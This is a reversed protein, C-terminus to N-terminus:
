ATFMQSMNMASNMDIGNKKMNPTTQNAAGDNMAKKTNGAEKKMTKDGQMNQFTQPNFGGTKSADEGGKNFSTVGAMFNGFGTQQMNAAEALKQGQAALSLELKRQAIEGSLTNAMQQQQTARNSNAGYLQNNLQGGLKQAGLMASVTGGVNGGTVTSLGRQTAATNQQAEQLNAQTLADTGGEIQAQKRRTEELLAVQTPDVPPPALREAKRKKIAGSIMQGAGIAAGVMANKNGQSKNKVKNAGEKAMKWWGM